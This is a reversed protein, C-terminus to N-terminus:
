PTRSAAAPKVSAIFAHFAPKEKELVAAPGTLKFFWTSGAHPVWVGITRGPNAGNGTIDAIGFKMGNHEERTISAELEGAAIPPLNLPAQSRWRNINDLEGGVDGPFATIAMEANGGDGSILYTGKRMAAAPGVTWHSPATWALDSGSATAVPTSAMSGGGAAPATAAPAPAASALTRPEPDQEKPIRYTSVEDKSCGVFALTAVLLAAAFPRPENM